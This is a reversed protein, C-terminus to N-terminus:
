RPSPAWAPPSPVSPAAPPWPGATERRGAASGWRSARRAVAALCPTTASTTRM